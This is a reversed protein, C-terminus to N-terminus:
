GLLKEHCNECRGYIEMFLEIGMREDDFLDGMRYRVWEGECDLIEVVAKAIAWPSEDRFGWLEGKAPLEEKAIENKM